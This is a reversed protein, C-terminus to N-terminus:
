TQCSWYDLDQFAQRSDVYDTHKWTYSAPYRHFPPITTFHLGLGGASVRAPIPPVQISGPKGHRSTCYDKFSYRTRYNPIGDKLKAFVTAPTIPNSDALLTVSKDVVGVACLSRPSARIQLMAESGPTQEREAFSISVKNRLCKEVDIERSDAIIEKTADNGSGQVVHFVLLKIQPAMEHTVNFELNFSAVGRSGGLQRQAKKLLVFLNSASGDDATETSAYQLETLTQETTGVDIIKNNAGVKYYFQRTGPKNVTYTIRVSGIEGCRMVGTAAEIQLFQKSTSFWGRVRKSTQVGGADVTKAVLYISEIEKGIEITFTAIGNAATPSVQNPQNGSLEILIGAAPKGDPQTAVVEAVYPISGRFYDRGRIQLNLRDLVLSASEEGTLTVDTDLETVNASFTLQANYWRGSSYERDEIPLESIDVDFERCGDQLDLPRADVCPPEVGGTSYSLRKEDPRLCVSLVAEGEVAKGYTYRACVTASVRTVTRPIKKSPFAVTVDYKPLVYELVKFQKKTVGDESTVVIEWTGLPPEKSLDLDLTAIGGDTVVDLWQAIRTGSPNNIWVKSIPETIPKLESSLRLIRFQVKQGPKYVPKDPEIFTVPKVFPRRLFVQKQDAVHFYTTEDARFLLYATTESTDPISLDACLSAGNVDQNYLHTSAIVDPVTVDNTRKLLISINVPPLQFDAKIFDMCIQEAQGISM